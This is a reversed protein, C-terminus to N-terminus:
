RHRTTLSLPRSLPPMILGADDLAALPAFFAPRALAPPPVAALDAAFFGAAFAAARGAAAVFLVPAFLVPVGLGPVPPAETFFAGDAFTEAPSAAAFVVGEFGAGELAVEAFARAPFFGAGDAFAFSSGARGGRGGGVALPVRSHILGLNPL